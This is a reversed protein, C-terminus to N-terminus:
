NQRHRFCTQHRCLEDPPKQCRSPRHDTQPAMQKSEPESYDLLSQIDAMNQFLDEDDFDTLPKHAPNRQSANRLDAASIGEDQLIKAVAARDNSLGGEMITSIARLLSDRQSEILQVYAANPPKPERKSERNTTCIVGDRKCKECIKGNSNWQCRAKKLRCRDCAKPTRKPYYGCTKDETEPSVRQRKIGQPSPSKGDSPASSSLEAHKSEPVTFFMASSPGHSLQRLPTNSQRVRAGVSLAAPDVHLRTNLRTM